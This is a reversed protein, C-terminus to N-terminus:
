QQLQLEIFKAQTACRKHALQGWGTGHNIALSQARKYEGAPILGISGLLEGRRYVSDRADLARHFSAKMAPFTKPWAEHSRHHSTASMIPNM